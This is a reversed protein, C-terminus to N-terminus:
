VQVLFNSGSLTTVGSLNAFMGGSGLGATTGNQNYFLDGTAQNFVIRDALGGAVLEGDDSANIVAFDSSNLGGGAVSTLTTFTTKDLVIRDTGRVFDTITDVGVDNTTFSSGTNYIFRDVGSGGTVTDDGGRGNIRDNGAGGNISDDGSWTTINDNKSTGKINFRDIDQFYLYDLYSSSTSTTYRYVNGKSGYTSSSINMSIGIGTDGISYDLILLDDGTYGYVEDNRGLGPNFTDNGSGGSFVDNSRYVANNILGSQTLTDNGSGTTITFREFNIAQVTGPMDIGLNPNSITISSSQNSFDLRLRDTGTGGDLIDYGGGGNTVTDNGAGANITDNGTSPNIYDNKSTGTIAFRNIEEFYIRDLYVTSNTATYRYGYGEAGFSDSSADLTMGTGTDDVSYDLILLDDGTYGKVQDDKGLGANFTDNGGGGNFIENSRYVAGNILGSQTLTNNGNGTTINFKEFNIAQIVGPINIGLLPNNITINSFSSLDLLLTDTGAGGDLFDYGGDGNSVTDDGAGANITDNGRWPNIYDDKSTGVINFRDIGEFYIRDLYVISGLATYRYGYGEAGFLDSSTDLTMGTGTDGQSYDLILLDNGIGGDVQDDGLGPNFEDNASTGNLEDNGNTGNLVAM